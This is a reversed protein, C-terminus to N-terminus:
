LILLKGDRRKIIVDEPNLIDRQLETVSGKVPINRHIEVTIRHLESTDTQANQPDRFLPVTGSSSG